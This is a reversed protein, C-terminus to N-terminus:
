LGKYRQNVFDIMETTVDMEPDAHILTGNGNAGLMLSYGGKESFEKMYTNLQTLIQKDYDATTRENLEAYRQERERYEKILASTAEKDSKKQFQIRVRLSDLDAQRAITVENLKASLEKKLDFADFVMTLSVYAVRPRTFHGHVQWGISLLLATALLLIDWKVRM